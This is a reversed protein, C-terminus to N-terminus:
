QPRYARKTYENRHIWVSDGEHRFEFWQSSESAKGHTNQITLKGDEIVYTGEYNNTTGSNSIVAWPENNKVMFWIYPGMYDFSAQVYLGSLGPEEGGYQTLWYGQPIDAIRVLRGEQVLQGNLFWQMTVACDVHLILKVEVNDSGEDLGKFSDGDMEYYGSRLTFNREAYYDYSELLDSIADDQSLSVKTSKYFFANGDFIYHYTYGDNVVDSKYIGARINGSADTCLSGSHMEPDPDDPHDLDGDDFWNGIEGEEVNFDHGGQDGGRVLEGKNEEEDDWWHPGREGPGHTRTIGIAWSIYPKQQQQPKEGKEGTPPDEKKEKKDGVISGKPIIVDVYPSLESTRYWSGPGGRMVIGDVEQVIEQHVEDAEMEEETLPLTAAQSAAYVTIDLSEIYIGQPDALAFGTNPLKTGEGKVAVLYIARFGNGSVRAFFSPGYWVGYLNDAVGPYVNGHPILRSIVHFEDNTVDWLYLLGDETSVFVPCDFWVMLNQGNIVGTIEGSPLNLRIIFQEGTEENIVQIFANDAIVTYNVISEHERTIRIERAENEDAVFLYDKSRIPLMTLYNEAFIPSQFSTGPEYAQTLVLDSVGIDGKCFSWIGSLSYANGGYSIGQTTGAASWVDEHTSANIYRTVDTCGTTCLYSSMSLDTFVLVEGRVNLNAVAFDTLKTQVGNEDQCYLTGGDDFNAYFYNNGQQTILGGSQLNERTNGILNMGNKDTPIGGTSLQEGGSGAGGFLITGGFYGGLGLAVL